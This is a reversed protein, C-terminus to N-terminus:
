AQHIQFIICFLKKTKASAFKNCHIKHRIKSPECNILLIEKVPKPHSKFQATSNNRAVFVIRHRCSYEYVGFTHSSIFYIFLIEMYFFTFVIVSFPKLEWRERGYGAYLSKGISKRERERSARVYIYFVFLFMLMFLENGTQM